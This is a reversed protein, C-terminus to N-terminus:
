LKRGDFIIEEPKVNNPDKHFRQHASESTFAILNEPRNDQKNEISGIPYKIGIHHVKEKPTLYRGVQQEIVLRHELIYGNNKCFPHEWKKILIYGDRDKAKGDKWRPHNPGQKSKSMKRKTKISLKHGKKFETTPHNGKQFGFTKRKHSKELKDKIKKKTIESHKSDKKM